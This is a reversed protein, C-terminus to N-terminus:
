CVSHSFLLLLPHYVEDQSENPLEPFVDFQLKNEKCGIFLENVPWDTVAAALWILALLPHVTPSSQQPLSGRGFIICRKFIEINLMFERPMSAQYRRYSCSSKTRNVPHTILGGGPSVREAATSSLVASRILHPLLSSSLILVYRAVVLSSFRHSYIQWFQVLAWHTWCSIM